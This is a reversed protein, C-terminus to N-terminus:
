MLHMLGGLSLSLMYKQMTCLFQWQHPFIRKSMNLLLLRQLQLLRPWMLSMSHQIHLVSLSVFVGSLNTTLTLPVQRLSLEIRMSGNWWQQLIPPHLSYLQQCIIFMNQLNNHQLIWLSTRPDIFHFNRLSLNNHMNKNRHNSLIITFLKLMRNFKRLNQMTSHMTRLNRNDTILLIGISM